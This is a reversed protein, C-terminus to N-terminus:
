FQPQQTAGGDSDASDASDAKKKKIAREPRILPEFKGNAPRVSEGSKRGGIEEQNL